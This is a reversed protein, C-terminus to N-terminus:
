SHVSQPANDKEKTKLYNCVSSLQKPDFKKLRIWRQITSIPRGFLDALDRVTYIYYRGKPKNKRKGRKDPTM